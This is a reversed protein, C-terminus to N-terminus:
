KLPPACHQAINVSVSVNVSPSPAVYGKSSKAAPSAFLTAVPLMGENNTLSVRAGKTLLKVGLELRLLKVALHLASYGESNCLELDPKAELVKKFMSEAKSLQDWHELIFLMPTLGAASKSDPSAGKELLKGLAVDNDKRVAINLATEGTRNTADINRAAQVVAAVLNLADKSGEEILWMLATEPNHAAALDVDVGCDILFKVAKWKRKTVAALFLPM